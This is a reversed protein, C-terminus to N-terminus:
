ASCIYVFNARRSRFNRALGSHVVVAVEGQELCVQRGEQQRKGGEEEEKRTPTRHDEKRYGIVIKKM